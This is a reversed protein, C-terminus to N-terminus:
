RGAEGAGSRSRRSRGSSRLAKAGLDLAAERNIKPWSGLTLKRPTGAHRYRVAFSKAGSSQVILYFEPLLGDPIERRKMEAKATEIGRVTLAKAMDYGQTVGPYHPLSTEPWM